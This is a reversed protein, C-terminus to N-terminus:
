RAVRGSKGTSERVRRPASLREEGVGVRAREEEAVDSREGPVPQARDRAVEDEQEREGAPQETAPVGSARALWFAQRRGDFRCSEGEDIPEDEEGRVSEAVECGASRSPNGVKGHSTM